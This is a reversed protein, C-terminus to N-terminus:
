FVAIPNFPSGTAKPLRLPAIVVMFEFRKEENCVRVLEEFQLSDAVCMGMATVQLPHIPYELGEVYSPVLEGDGDPLFAAVKREHLLTLAYPDLGARGEGSYGADWAGLELRRRHHGTRFVMIDGESLRVGQAAEAAEIDERTIAEGPELWKVGRLRPMDILVGKGVIGQAYDTIDLGLAGRATVLGAPRGNYLQGKYAIHCLADIHTHCDGHFQMALFDTAFRLEGCGIDIDHTTNMYHIAPNPNDPGALTNIPIAMSVSRGSKVLAAAAHVKDPTIYNLTGMVDDAGWKGWNKLTEFLRDFEEISM